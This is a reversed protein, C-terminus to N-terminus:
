ALVEEGAFNDFGGEPEGIDEFQVVVFDGHDGVQESQGFVLFGEDEGDGLAEVQVGDGEGAAGGAREYPM